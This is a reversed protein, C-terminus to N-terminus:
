SKESKPTEKRARKKKKKKGEEATEQGKKQFPFGMSELLRFSHDKDQTSTIVAIELGHIADIEDSRIEPFVIHEKIGLNLNGQADVTKRSIGRFDRVRPLTINILRELFDYMRKGRLTVMAGLDMGKRIKFNSISKKARTKVPKQGAIRELTSTIIDMFKAEKLGKGAGVNLVVKKVKPVALASKLKLEKQLAPAIEKKYKEFLQNM